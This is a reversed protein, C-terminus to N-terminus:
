RGSLDVTLSPGDTGHVSDVGIILVAKIGEPIKVGSLSRVFPQEDVHPHYLTRTGLVTGDPALILWANAYHDWGEDDHKLGVHFKYVGKRVQAAEASVVAVDGASATVGTMLSLLAAIVVIRM